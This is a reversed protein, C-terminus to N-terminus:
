FNRLVSPRPDERDINFESAINKKNLLLNNLLVQTKKQGDDQFIIWKKMIFPKKEFIIEVFGKSNEKNKIKIKLQNEFDRTSSIEINKKKFNKYLFLNVPIDALNYFAISKLEKNITAFRKGDSIMLMPIENYEIRAKGPRNILIRGSLVGGNNNIQVFEANLSRFDQLYKIIREKNVNGFCSKYIFIITVFSIISPKFM